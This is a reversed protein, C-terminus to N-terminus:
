SVGGTIIEPATAPDYLPPWERVATSRDDSEVRGDRMRLVRKAHAAVDNEHTIVVLTRGSVSLADFLALVEATSHSDLAGTPEDALLLVPETVIARAIAVRQQQGGSLQAPTHGTRDALGVQTLAALARERRRRASAGAYALPLEVNRLASTRAILNFSQFVFGIKRNRIRSQQRDDLGRVDVGDLHYSGSTAVDLCGIINMLSSKGSGSAGMVAVYDGREVVLDVGAVAHVTTGGEGYTRVIDRLEIVPPETPPSLEVDIM